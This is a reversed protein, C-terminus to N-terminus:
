EVGFESYLNFTAWGWGAMGRWVEGLRVKGRWARYHRVGGRGRVNLYAPIINLTTVM